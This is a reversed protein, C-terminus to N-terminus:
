QGEIPPTDNEAQLLTGIPRGKAHREHAECFEEFWWRVSRDEPSHLRMSLVEAIANQNTVGSFAAVFGTHARVRNPYRDNLLLNTSTNAPDMLEATPIGLERAVKEATGYSPKTKKSLMSSISAQTLGIKRAFAAVNGDFRESILTRIADVVKVARADELSPRGARTRLIKPKAVLMVRALSPM